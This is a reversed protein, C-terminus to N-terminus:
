TKFFAVHYIDWTKRCSSCPCWAVNCHKGSASHFRCHSIIIDLNSEFDEFMGTFCIRKTKPTAKEYEDDRPTDRKGAFAVIVGRSWFFVRIIKVQLFWQLGRHHTFIEKGDQLYHKLLRPAFDSPCKRGLFGWTSLASRWDKANKHTKSLCTVGCVDLLSGVCPRLSM